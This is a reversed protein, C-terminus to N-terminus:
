KKKSKRVVFSHFNIGKQEATEWEKQVDETSENSLKAITEIEELLMEKVRGM